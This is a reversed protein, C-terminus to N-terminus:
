GRRRFLGRRQRAAMLDSELREIRSRERELEAAVVELRAQAAAAEAQADAARDALNARDAEAAELKQREQRYLDELLERAARLEAVVEPDGAATMPAEDEAVREPYRAALAAAPILWREGKPGPAKHAGELGDGGPELRRRLTAVSVVYREAAETLSLLTGSADPRRTDTREPTATDGVAPLEGAPEDSELDSM